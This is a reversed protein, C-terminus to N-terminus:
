DEKEEVEEIAESWKDITGKVEKRETELRKESDEWQDLDIRSELAELVLKQLESPEIADLEWCSAGYNIVYNRSRPDAAKTPNPMLGYEKVQDFTLAVREVEVNWGGYRRLREALDRTMDIGSPDHDAFHLVIVDKDAPLKELAAKVYTYSAYGRSPAVIM